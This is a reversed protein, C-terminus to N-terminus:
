CAAGHGHARAAVGDPGLGDIIRTAGRGSARPRAGAGAPRLDRRLARRLVVQQLLVPLAAPFAGCSRARCTRASSTSATARARHRRAGVVLPLLKVWCRCRTRTTCADNSPRRVAISQAGSSEGDDGVFWDYAVFGAVARRRGGARYLPILMVLPSEHVHDMTHHDGRPKGHFTLFMLRWSYFATLFAAPSASGSPSVPRGDTHAGFAAELIIDKSYFGAFGIGLMVPIGIGTLALTGIWM